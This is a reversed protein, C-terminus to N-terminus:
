LGLTSQTSRMGHPHASRREKLSARASCVCASTHSFSLTLMFHPLPFVHVHVSWDRVVDNWGDDRDKLTLIPLGLPPEVDEEVEVAAVMEEALLPPLSRQRAASAATTYSSLLQLGSASAILSLLTFYLM